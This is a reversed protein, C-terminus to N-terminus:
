YRTQFPVSQAYNRQFHKLYTEALLPNHWNGLVDESNRTAATSYNFSGLEVTERDVIPIKEHVTFEIM